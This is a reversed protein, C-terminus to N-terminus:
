NIRAEVTVKSHKRDKKPYLEDAYQVFRDAVAELTNALDLRAFDSLEDKYKILEKLRGLLPDDFDLIKNIDRGVNQKVTNIDPLSPKINMPRIRKHKIHNVIAATPARGNSEKVAQTWIQRQAAPKLNALPRLQRESTPKFDSVQTPKSVMTDLHESTPKFDSVQSSKPVMTGLNRAVEAARIQKNVYDRKWGWREHCYAEFTKHTDRYLRNDRIELLANGVDIFTKLNREIIAECRKLESCYDIKKV